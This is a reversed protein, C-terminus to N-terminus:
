DDVHLDPNDDMMDKKKSKLLFARCLKEIRKEKNTVVLFGLHSHLTYNLM